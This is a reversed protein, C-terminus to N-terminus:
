LYYEFQNESRAFRRIEFVHAPASDPDIEVFNRSGRWNYRADGLLDHVQFQEDPALGLATLDLDIWARHVHHPDLNVVVLITDDEERKSYCMVLESDTQHFQLSRNDQLAPHAHRIRNLRALLHRLSGERDLDWTRIQYKENRALEEADRRPVAECLEYAPGYIGYSAGLTAALVVRQVFASRGGHVLHEPFIDPTTPWFSPRFYEAVNSTCVETAYAELDHKSTRWTFYTYGQSFGVKALAYMLKPRTFAEALFVTDPYLARVEALCWEWFRIPKTHPNDVRFVRVGHKCWFVFVDRLAAWLARWDASEFDFPYVDQYKKPPNEAYQITGDPRAKFWAPHEKVWPHDPSAQFAIDLAVEIGRAKATTVFRDFDALTGLQPHIATHGGEPGGIAWPSGPDDPGATPSNDPGKRFATGIPHIPPLYVIDFGLDAVYELRAEADRLSGHSGDSTTSRPFMEYWASFTALRREVLVSQDPSRDANARPAARRMAVLLEESTAMALRAHRDAGGRLATVAHALIPDDAHARAAEVLLAGELLEVSVDVGAALKKELGRRWTAFSDVWAVVGYIHHGLAPLDITAHWVDNGAAVLETERWAATGPARDIAVARLLDHGDGVIDAEVILRDGLARKIPYRGGDVVPRVALVVARRCADDLPRGPASPCM